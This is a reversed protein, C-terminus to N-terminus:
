GCCTRTRARGRSPVGPRNSRRHAGLRPVLNGLVDIFPDVAKIRQLEYQVPEATGLDCFELVTPCVCLLTVTTLNNTVTSTLVRWVGNLSNRCGGKQRVNRIHIKDRNALSLVGAVVIQLTPTGSINVQAWSLISLATQAKKTKFGWTPASSAQIANRWPKFLQLWKAQQADYQTDTGGPLLGGFQATIGDPVMSLSVRSKADSLGTLRVDIDTTAEDSFGDYNNPFDSVKVLGVPQTKGVRIPNLTTDDRASVRMGTVRGHGGMLAVRKKALDIGNKVATAVDGATLNWLTETATGFDNTLFWTTRFKM